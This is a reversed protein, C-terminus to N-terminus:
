AEDSMVYRNADDDDCRARCADEDDEDDCQTKGRDARADRDLDDDVDHPSTQRRRADAHTHTHTVDVRLIVDDISRHPVRPACQKGLRTRSSRPSTPARPGQDRITSRAGGHNPRCLRRRRRRRAPTAPTPTARAHVRGGVRTHGFGARSARACLFYSRRAHTTMLVHACPRARSPTSTSTATRPTTAFRIPVKKHRNVNWTYEDNVRRRKSTTTSSVQITPSTCAM